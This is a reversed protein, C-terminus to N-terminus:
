LEILEYELNGLGLGSAYKLQRMGDRDPHVQRFVDKGCAKVVLDLSAKDISVPDLSALIGIDPAIRPDDKAICDCEKTIKLAFNLFACKTKKGTLAAKAYEVMKQQIKDGGQEWKVDIAHYVCAAICSACGICKGSDICSKKNAIVIAKAPCAKECEGCGVCIKERVFPSVDSHQALKGDRSACGMGLNKLAGAFGAM